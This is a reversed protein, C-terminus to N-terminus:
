TVPRPKFIRKTRTKPKRGIKMRKGKRERDLTYQEFTPLVARVVPLNLSTSSIDVIVAYPIIGRLMEVTARIDKAPTNASKDELDSLTVKEASDIYWYRNLRKMADYGFTRVVSERDTDERAGHIQVVRSQAAETLARSVAIEPILHSGAGM